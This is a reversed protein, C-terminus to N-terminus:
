LTPLAGGSRKASCTHYVRTGTLQQGTITQVTIRVSVRGPPLGRLDVPATLRVGRRVKVVKGNVLVAVKRVFSGAPARLRITFVRRSACPAKALYSQGASVKVTKGTTFDNVDVLGRAVQVKTGACRDETMWRTGRVTAAAYNGSTRYQGHADGWVLRKKHKTTAAARAGGKTATTACDPAPGALRLEALTATTSQFITFAGGFFDGGEIPGPTVPDNPAVAFTLHV